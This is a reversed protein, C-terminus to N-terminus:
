VKKIWENMSPYRHENWLKTIIFLAMLFIPICTDRYYAPKREKPFIGLLPIAPDYPLEIELKNLVRQV